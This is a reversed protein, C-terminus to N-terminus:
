AVHYHRREQVAQGIIQLASWFFLGAMLAAVFLDPWVTGSYWVGL